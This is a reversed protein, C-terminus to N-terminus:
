TLMDGPRLPCPIASLARDLESVDADERAAVAFVLVRVELGDSTVGSWVRAASDGIIKIEATPKITIAFENMHAKERALQEAVPSDSRVFLGAALPQEVLHNRRIARLVM